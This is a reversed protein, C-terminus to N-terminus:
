LRSFNCRSFRFPASEAVEVGSEADSIEDTYPDEVKVAGTRVKDLTELARSYQQYRADQVVIEQSLARSALRYIILSLACNLLSAPITDTLADLRNGSYQAVAARIETTTAAIIGDLPSIGDSGVNDVVNKEISTARQLVHSHSIKIWAM